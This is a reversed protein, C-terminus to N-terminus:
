TSELKAENPAKQPTLCEEQTPENREPEGEGCGGSTGAFINAQSRPWSPGYVLDWCEQSMEESPAQPATEGSEEDGCGGSRVECEDDAMRRKCDAM